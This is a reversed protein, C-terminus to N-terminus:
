SEEVSTDGEVRVCWDVVVMALRIDSIVLRSRYRPILPTSLCASVNVKETVVLQLLPTANTM